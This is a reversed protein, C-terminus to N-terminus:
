AGMCLGIIFLPRGNARSTTLAVIKDLDEEYESFNEVHGVMGDSLGHGRQDYATVSYGNALLHATLAAYIGSHDGFGHVIIIEGRAGITEHRRLYLRLGDGATLTEEIFAM